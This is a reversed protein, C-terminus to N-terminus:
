FQRFYSKAPPDTEREIWYSKANHDLRRQMPDHGRLRMLLGIPTLVAYWVIALIVHSVVMGVPWAATIWGVFVPKMLRPKLVGLIGALVVVGWVPFVIHWIGFHRGAILGVVLFFAPLWIGSFQRLERESPNKPIEILAMKM